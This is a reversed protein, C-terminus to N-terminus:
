KNNHMPASCNVQVHYLDCFHLFWFREYMMGKEKEGNTKGNVPEFTECSDFCEAIKAIKRQSNNLSTQMSDECHKVTKVEILWDCKLNM